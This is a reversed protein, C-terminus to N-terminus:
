FKPSKDALQQGYEKLWADFESQSVDAAAYRTLMDRAEPQIKSMDNGANRVIAIAQIFEDPISRKEVPM